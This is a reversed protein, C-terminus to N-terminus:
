RVSNMRKQLENLPDDVVFGFLLESDLNQANLPRSSTRLFYVCTCLKPLISLSRDGSSIGFRCGRYVFYQREGVLSDVGSSSTDDDEVDDISTSSSSSAIGSGSVLAEFASAEGAGEQGYFAFLLRKSDNSSVFSLAVRVFSDCKALDVDSGIAPLAEVCRKALSVVRADSM